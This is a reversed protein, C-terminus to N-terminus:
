LYALLVVAVITVALAVGVAKRTRKFVGAMFFFSAFLLAAMVRGGWEGLGSAALLHAVLNFVGKLIGWLLQYDIM